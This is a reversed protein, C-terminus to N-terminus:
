RLTDLFAKMTDVSVDGYYTYEAGEYSFMATVMQGSTDSEEWMAPGFSNEGYMSIIMADTDISPIHWVEVSENESMHYPDQVNIEKYEAPMNKEYLEADTLILIQVGIPTKFRKGAEFSFEPEISATESEKVKFNKLDGIVYANDQIHMGAFVSKKKEEDYIMSPWYRVLKGTRLCSKDRTDLLNIDFAEEVEQMTDFFDPLTLYHRVEKEEVEIELHDGEDSYLVYRIRNMMENAYVMVDPIAFVMCLCLATLAPKLYRVYYRKEKQIPVERKIKESQAHTMKVTRLAEDFEYKKM